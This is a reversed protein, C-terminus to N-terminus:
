PEDSVRKRNADLADHARDLPRKLFNSGDASVAQSTQAPQVATQVTAQPPAPKPRVFFFYVLALVVLIALYRM